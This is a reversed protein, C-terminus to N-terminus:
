SQGERDRVKGMGSQPVAHAKQPRLSINIGPKNSIERYIHQKVKLNITVARHYTEGQGVHM